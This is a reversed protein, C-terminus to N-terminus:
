ETISIHHKTMSIYKIINLLSSTKIDMCIKRISLKESRMLMQKISLKIDSCMSKLRNSHVHLAEKNETKDMLSAQTNNIEAENQDQVLENQEINYLLPFSVNSTDIDYVYGENRCIKKSCKKCEMNVCTEPIPIFEIKPELLINKREMISLFEEIISGVVNDIYKELRKSWFRRNDTETRSKYFEYYKSPLIQFGLERIVIDPFKSTIKMKTDENIFSVLLGKCDYERLNDVISEVREDYYHPERWNLIEIAGKLSPIIVDAGKDQVLHPEIDYEKKLLAQSIKIEAIKGVMETYKSRYEPYKGFLKKTLNNNNNIQLNNEV